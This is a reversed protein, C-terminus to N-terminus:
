QNIQVTVIGAPTRPSEDYSGLILVFIAEDLSYNPPILFDLSGEALLNKQVALPQATGYDAPDVTASYLEISVRPVGTAQWELTVSIGPAIATDDIVRFLQLEAVSVDTSTPIAPEQAPTPLIDNVIDLRACEASFEADTSNVWGIWVAGLDDYRVRYWEGNELRGVPYATTFHEIAVIVSASPDPEFYLDAQQGDRSAMECVEEVLQAVATPTPEPIQDCEGALTVEMARVWGLIGDPVRILEYWGSSDVVNVRVAEGPDLRGTISSEYDPAEYIQVPQDTASSVVCEDMMQQLLVPTNTMWVPQTATVQALSSEPQPTPTGPITLPTSSAVATTTAEGAAGFQPDDGVPRSFMLFLGGFVVMVAISAVLTIPFSRRYAQRDRQVSRAPHRPMVVPVPQDLPMRVASTRVTEDAHVADMHPQTKPARASARVRESLPPLDRAWQSAQSRVAKGIIQWEALAARCEPSDELYRELKRQGAESLTGAVYFPLLEQWDERMM